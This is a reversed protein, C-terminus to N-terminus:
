GEPSRYSYNLLNLGTIEETITHEVQLRPNAEIFFFEGSEQDVLFEITGLNLYNVSGALHLSASILQDRVTPDLNPAPALESSKRDGGSCPVIASGSIRYKM